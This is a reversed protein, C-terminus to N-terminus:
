SELRRFLGVTILCPVEECTSYPHQLPVTPTSCPYQLPVAPTSPRLRERCHAVLHDKVRPSEPQACAEGVVGHTWLRWASYRPTGNPVTPYRPTGATAFQKSGSATGRVAGSKSRDCRRRVSGNRHAREVGNTRCHTCTISPQAIVHAHRHTCTHMCTHIYAHIEDM